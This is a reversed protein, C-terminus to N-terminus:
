GKLTLLVGAVIVAAGLGTNLTVKEKLVLFGLVVALVFSLKDIPAVKSVPGLQLARFYCLWSAGTAIGSLTLFTWNKSTLQGIQTQRTWLAIGVSFILVVVVRVALALNSPVGEVGKKALVATLGAFLASLLAWIRFDM